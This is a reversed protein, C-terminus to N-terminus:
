ASIVEIQRIPFSLLSFIDMKLFIQEKESSIRTVDQVTTSLQDLSYTVENYNNELIKWINM